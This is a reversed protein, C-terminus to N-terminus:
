EGKLESKNNRAMLDQLQRYTWKTGDRNNGCDCWPCVDTGGMSAECVPLGCIRCPANEDYEIVVDKGGSKYTVTKM